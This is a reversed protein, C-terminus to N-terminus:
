KSHTAIFYTVSVLLTNFGFVFSVLKWTQSNMDRQLSILQQMVGDIRDDFRRTVAEVAVHLDEKTVYNSKIVAVDRELTALREILKESDTEM